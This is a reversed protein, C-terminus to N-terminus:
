NEMAGSGFWVYPYLRHPYHGPMWHCHTLWQQKSCQGSWHKGFKKQPSKRKSRLTNRVSPNRTKITLGKQGHGRATSGRGGAQSGSAWIMHKRSNMATIQKHLEKFAEHWKPFFLKELTEGVLWTSFHLVHLFFFTELFPWQSITEVQRKKKQKFQGGKENRM